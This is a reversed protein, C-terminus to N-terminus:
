QGGDSSSMTGPGAASRRATQKNGGAASQLQVHTPDLVLLAGRYLLRLCKSSPCVVSPVIGSSRRRAAETRRADGPARCIVSGHRQLELKRQKCCGAEILFFSNSSGFEWPRHILEMGHEGDDCGCASFMQSADVHASHATHSAVAIQRRRNPSSWRACCGSVEIEGESRRHHVRPNRSSPMRTVLWLDASSMRVSIVKSVAYSSAEGDADHQHVRIASSPACAVGVIHVSPVAHMLVLM